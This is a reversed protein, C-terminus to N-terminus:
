EHALLCRHSWDCLGSCPDGEQARKRDGSDDDTADDGRLQPRRRLYGLELGRDFLFREDTDCVDRARTLSTRPTHENLV